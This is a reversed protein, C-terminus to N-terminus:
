RPALRARCSLFVFRMSRTFSINGAELRLASHVSRHALPQRFAQAAARPGVARQGAVDEGLEARDGELGGRAERGLDPDALRGDAAEAARQAIPVELVELVLQALVDAVPGPQDAVPQAAELRARPSL